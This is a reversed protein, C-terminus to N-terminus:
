LKLGQIEYEEKIRDLIEDAPIESKEDERRLSYEVIKEAARKGVTIRIPIGILDRDKFKVGPRENRDDLLVEIGEEKLKKYIDEGLKAQEEDKAKVVTIIAQYPALALPWVIGNEDHNQEVAAALLRSANLKYSGVAFPKEKGDEDLFTANAAESCKTGLQTMRGVEIGRDVNLLQGCKPCMDKDEVLLLDEVVEGEFDRGYNVNKIHYDTENGGVILNKMKTIRSDVIVRVGEKLGVPGAFGKVAGTIDEVVTEDAMELQEQSIGLYNCLKVENLERHGPVVVLIPKGDAVYILSKGFNSKDMDFFAELDEITTVDPTHVKEMPMEAEEQEEMNYVVKANHVNAGYDCKNCYVFVDEGVEALAIFEHGEERETIRYKLKLRELISEYAKRVHSYSNNMGDIDKDYSYSEKELNEKARILGYRPKIEDKHSNYVQYFTLPLQKYSRVESKILPTLHDEYTSALYFEQAGTKDMQQRIIDEIKKLVRHGIPLYSYVGLDIRRIMGARLLLQHSPVEAESPVERLTPMYLRSMRM